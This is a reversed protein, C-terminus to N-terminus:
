KVVLNVLKGAVVIEKVLTKGELNRQVKESAKAAALIEEQSSGAPVELTDRLKGNVQVPIKITDQVLLAPDYEPWPEYGLTKSHGLREWLEEAIHPAFPSLVLVFTEMTERDVADAKTGANVFEMMRSIATNFQLNEIDRTVEKLTHHLVKTVAPDGGSDVIRPHLANEETIFLAWVRRLFRHVGQVGEEVWPKERDLPGMFMEYLRLSDAGLERVVTDPNVVNYRSKSMKEVQVQVPTEKDKVFWAEGRREVASPYHYKGNEDQYSHALIMGQNFLKAFPEKTSVLGADFLVKHWFRSYLLHLVAHEAGGIYLDVPMWYSEAEKSWAEQDNTSDCFRLYYWCSGAWQPMTNTERRIRQGTHPDTTEVWDAARALPPQGDATPRYDELPPLVVPLDEMPVARVTGDELTILPFPEGWYRQRSFLWDRLRYTVTAKGLGQEALWASIKRKAEPVPLGDILPSNVLIGDDTFAQRSIDGGSVVEVIPLGFKTAFEYDREDHAPVAMIAGYGYEALVYDAIWIPVQEGNVPNIAFAGTFVGTKEREAQMRDQASRKSAAEIYAEVDARRDPATVELTLPHEPALVCYTAGYLTDPRTTFITFERNTGAVKFLADAGESKGIWERQQAKISEPWDLNDLDSLLKEAYATIRLMWQKMMRKEVPDGTEVYRGDKVEENALVTGLAPCWNVPAETQYALGRDFLVSFIWQTWKYYGPDTTNIERDWDYSLGLSQIQRRFTDCNKNTIVAPHEGTRVAHREAPLGFADWGMPHLVNFGKMRKYRAVIDTATYGEPHGVHLGDGSPYPFMDLVYYKPKQHDIECKFTKDALWRGQWKPEIAQPNYAGAITRAAPEASQHTTNTM